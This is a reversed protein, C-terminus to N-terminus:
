MKMMMFLTVMQVEKVEELEEELFWVMGISDEDDNRRLKAPRQFTFLM